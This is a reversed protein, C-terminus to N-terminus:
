EGHLLASLWDRDPPDNRAHVCVGRHSERIRDTLDLALTAFLERGPTGAPELQAAHVDLMTAGLDDRGCASLLAVSVVLTALLAPRPGAQPEAPMRLHRLGAHAVACQGRAHVSAYAHLGDRVYELDTPARGTNTILALVAAVTWSSGDASPLLGARVAADALAARQRLPDGPPYMRQSAAVAYQAWGRVLLGPADPVAIWRLAAEVLRSDDPASAPDRGALLDPITPDSSTGGVLHPRGSM